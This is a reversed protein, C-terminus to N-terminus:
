AGPESEQDRVVESAVSVGARKAAILADHEKMVRGMLQQSNQMMSALRDIGEAASGILQFLHDQREALAALVHKLRPDCEVRELDVRIDRANMGGLRPM